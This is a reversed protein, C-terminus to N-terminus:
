DLPTFRADCQASREHLGLHLSGPREAAGGEGAGRRQKDRTEKHSLSMQPSNLRVDSRTQQRPARVWNGREATGSAKSSSGGDRHMKHVPSCILMSRPPHILPPPPLPPFHRIKCLSKSTNFNLFPRSSSNRKLGIGFVSLSVAARPGAGSSGASGRGGLEGQGVEPM